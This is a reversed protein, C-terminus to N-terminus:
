SSSPSSPPSPWFDASKVKSISNLVGLPTIDGVVTVKKMEFNINFSTVGAMRSIHKRVKSECGKCHLSVRLHVTSLAPSAVPLYHPSSDLSLLPPPLDSDFTPFLVDVVDTLTDDDSDDHLLHRSSVRQSRLESPASDLSKRTRHDHSRSSSSPSSISALAPIPKARRPNRIHSIQGTTPRVISRRDISACIAASAPSVCSFNVGKM